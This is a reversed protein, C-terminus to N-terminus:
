EPKHARIMITNDKWVYQTEINEFGLQRHFDILEDKSPYSIVGREVLDQFSIMVPKIKKMLLIIAKRHLLMERILLRIGLEKKFDFKKLVNTSVIYGGHKAVRFAERLINKWEGIPLYYFVLHFVQVDFTADPFPIGQCLDAQKLEIRCNHKRSLRGMRRKGITERAENMMAPSIDLGVLCSPKVAQIIAKFHLGPGCGGDLAVGGPVPLLYRKLQKAFGRFVGIKGFTKRYWPAYREWLNLIEPPTEVGVVTGVGREEALETLVGLGM